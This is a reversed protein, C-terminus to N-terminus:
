RLVKVSINITGTGNNPISPIDNVLILGKKGDSNIFAYTGGKAVTIKQPSSTTVALATLAAADAAAYTVGSPAAAFYTNRGGDTSFVTTGCTAETVFTEIKSQPNSMLTPATPNAKPLIRYVIDVFKLNGEATAETALDCVAYPIGSASSFRSPALDSQAGLTINTWEAFSTTGSANITVYETKYKGDSEDVEFYLYTIGSNKVTYEITKTQEDRNKLDFKELEKNEKTGITTTEYLRLTQPRNGSAAKTIKLSITLKQNPAASYNKTAPILEITVTGNNEFPVSTKLPEGDTGCGNLVLLSGAALLMFVYNKMKGM